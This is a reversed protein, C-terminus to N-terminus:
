SRSIKTILKKRILQTISFSIVGVIFFWERYEYFWYVFPASILCWEVMLKLTLHNQNKVILVLDLVIISFIFFGWFIIGYLCVSIFSALMAVLINPSATSNMRIVVAAIFITIFSGCITIWNTALIKM